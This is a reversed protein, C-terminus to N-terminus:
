KDKGHALDFNRGGEGGVEYEATGTHWKMGDEREDGRTWQEKEGCMWRFRGLSGVWLRM